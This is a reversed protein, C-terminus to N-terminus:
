EIDCQYASLQKAWRQPRCTALKPISCKPGLLLTLSGHDSLLSFGSGFLYQHFKKICFVIALPETEIMSYNQESASLSRSTYAIPKEEGDDSVYSLVAGLGYSSADVAMRAPKKPDYHAVLPSSRLLEKM